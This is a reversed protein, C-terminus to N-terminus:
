RCIECHDVPEPYTGGASAEVAEQLARKVARYYAAFSALRYSEPEFGTGPRIVHFFEPELGQLEALLQSYLCLQLVTEARTERALKCDVAEYSWHGARSSREPQEVRLLVDARGGWAGGALSAQVIVQAGSEIAAWTAAAAEAEPENSLDVVTLGRARLGDIYAKEHELGRQQLV